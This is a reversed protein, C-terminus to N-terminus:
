ADGALFPLLAALTDEPKEEALFHGCDIGQGRVDTAKERWTAVVDYYREMFGKLGWLVLMPCAVKRSRDHRDHALDLSAAARYDECSAHICAPDRFCRRYEAVADPDFIAGPASWRGLKRELYFDPDLGIMHEPLGDPQILFFWHYYGTAFAQSTTEFMTLTPVIDLIAVREVRDAHDLCLRHAVRAGRDHGVLRFRDFGLAAMVDVQDQAMARKAYQAHDADGPPKDSDGYGRLDPCVVTYEGALTPAIRHWMVHSQPYGHLLLLPPGEGGVRANITPGGTAIRQTRFGEFM